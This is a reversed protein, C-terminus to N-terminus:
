AKPTFEIEINIDVEDGIPGQLATSGFDSRLITTSASFGLAAKKTMPHQALQGNLQVDLTVPKTVGNFTLDGNVLGTNDEALEVSTSRFSIKPNAKVGLFMDAVKADFDEDQKPYNTDVSAAEIEAVVSSKEPNDADLTLTASIGNFRGIYNSLGFHSVTWLVNTHTVDAVYTGSPATNDQAMAPTAMLVSLLILAASKM